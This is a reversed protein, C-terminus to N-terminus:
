RARVSWDTTFQIIFLRGGVDSHAIEDLRQHNIALLDLCPLGVDDYAKEIGRSSGTTFEGPLGAMKPVAM